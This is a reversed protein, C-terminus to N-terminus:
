TESENVLVELQTSDVLKGSLWGEVGEAPIYIKIWYREEDDRDWQHQYLIESEGNVGGVVEGDLSPDRRINAGNRGRENLQVYIPQQVEAEAEEIEAIAEEKAEEPESKVFLPPFSEYGMSMAEEYRQFFDKIGAFEALYEEQIYKSLPLDVFVAAVYIIVIVIAACRKLGTHKKGIIEETNEELKKDKWDMIRNDTEVAWSNNRGLLYVVESAVWACTKVFYSNLRFVKGYKQILKHLLRCLVFVIFLFIMGEILFRVPWIIHYFNHWAGFYMRKM